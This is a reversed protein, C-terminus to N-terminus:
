SGSPSNRAQSASFYGPVGHGHPLVTFDGVTFNGEPRLEATPEPPYAEHLILDAFVRLADLLESLATERNADTARLVARQASRVRAGLEAELDDHRRAPSAPTKTM